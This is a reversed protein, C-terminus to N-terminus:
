IWSTRRVKCRTHFLSGIGWSELHGVFFLSTVKKKKKKFKITVGMAYLDQAPPWIPAATALGVGCGYCCCIWAGDTVQVVAWLLMPEKVWESLSPILDVDERVGHQTRLRSLWSPFELSTVKSARRSWVDVRSHNHFHADPGSPGSNWIWDGSRVTSVWALQKM